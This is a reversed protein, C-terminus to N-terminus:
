RKFHQLQELLPNTFKHHQYEESKSRVQKPLARLTYNHSPRPLDPLCVQYDRM